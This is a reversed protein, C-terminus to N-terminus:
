YCSRIYDSTKQYTELDIGLMQLIYHKDVKIDIKDIAFLFASVTLVFHDSCTYLLYNELITAKLSECEEFLKESSPITVNSIMFLMEFIDDILFINLHWNSYNLILKEITLITKYDLNDDIIM